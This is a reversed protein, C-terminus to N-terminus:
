GADAARRPRSMWRRLPGAVVPWQYQDGFKRVASRAPPDDLMRSIGGAIAGADGAPVAVGLGAEAVSDSLTDGETLVMPLGAWIYDLIRTRFSMHTEIHALHTSVGIDAAALIGGRQDYPVWGENFFVNTGTLGLSDSLNRTVSATRMQPIDPNPHLMGLFLLRIDPREVRLLDVARVLSMPDFWNYVGGGWVLLPGDGVNPPRTPAPLPGPAIGFPVVDILARLAADDGYTRPNIRGLSGLAGLWFDRQRESACLFFDGRRLDANLVEVQHNVAAPDGSELNELHTPIYMDICLPKDSVEFFPYRAIVSTPAFVADCSGVLERLKGEDDTAVVRMSPDTRTAGRTGVLTVEHHAALELALNWSRIAPGPMSDTIPDWCLVLVRGSRGEM